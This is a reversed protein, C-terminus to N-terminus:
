RLGETIVATQGTTLRHSRDRCSASVLYPLQELQAWTIPSTPEPMVSWIEKKFTALKDPNSLLHVVCIRMTRATTETGAGILNQAENYFRYVTKDERPIDPNRALAPFLANVDKWKEDQHATQLIHTVENRLVGM